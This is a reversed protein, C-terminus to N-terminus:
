KMQGPNNTTVGSYIITPINTLNGSQINKIFKDIFKECDTQNKADSALAQYALYLFLVSKLFM